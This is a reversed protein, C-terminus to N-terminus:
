CPIAHPPPALCGRRHFKLNIERALGRETPWTPTQSVEIDMTKSETEFFSTLLDFCGAFREDNVVTTYTAENGRTSEPGTATDLLEVLKQPVRVLDMDSTCSPACLEKVRESPTCVSCLWRPRAAVLPNQIPPIM